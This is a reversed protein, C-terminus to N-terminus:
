ESKYLLIIANNSEYGNNNKDGHSDSFRYWCNEYIRCLSTYHGSYVSGSHEIVCELKYNINNNIEIKNNTYENFNFSEPYKIINDFYESEVIRAFFLLLYKPLSYISTSTYITNKNCKICSFDNSKYELFYENLIDRMDLPKNKNFKALKYIPLNLINFSNFKLINSTGCNKCFKEIRLIGYFLELIFSYGKKIYFKKYFKDFAEQDKIDYVKMKDIVKKKNTTEIILANLFASIFENADEQYNYQYKDDISSMVQKIKDPSLILNEDRKNDIKNLLDQFEKILKGNTSNDSNVKKFNLVNLKLEDIRTLLQLSSNLYCNNGRNIFGYIKNSKKIYKENKDYINPINHISDKNNIKKEKSCIIGNKKPQNENEIINKGIFSDNGKILNSQLENQIYGKKNYIENKEKLINNILSFDIEKNIKYSNLNNKKNINIENIITFFNDNQKILTKYVKSEGQYKIEKNRIIYYDAKKLTKNINLDVIKRDIINNCFKNKRLIKNLDYDNNFNIEIRNGRILTNIFNKELSKKNDSIKSSIRENDGNIINNKMKEGVLSNIRAKKHKVYFKMDDNKNATKIEIKKKNWDNEIQRDIENKSLYDKSKKVNRNKAKDKNELIKICKDNYIHIKSKIIFDKNRNNNEHCLSKTKDELNIKNITKLKKSLEKREYFAHNNFINNKNFKKNNYNNNNVNEGFTKKNFKNINDLNDIFPKFYNNYFESNKEKNQEMNMNKIEDNKLSKKNETYIDDCKNYIGLNKGIYKNLNSGNMNNIKRTEKISRDFKTNNENKKVSSFKNGYIYDNNKWNNADIKGSYIRFNYKNQQENRDHNSTNSLNKYIYM